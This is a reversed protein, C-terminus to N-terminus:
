HAKLILPYGLTLRITQDLMNYRASLQLNIPQHHTSYLITDWDSVYGNMSIFRDEAVQHILKADLDDTLWTRLNELDLLGNKLRADGIAEFCAYIHPIQELHDFHHKLDTNLSLFWTQDVPTQGSWAYVYHMRENREDPASYLLVQHTAGKATKALSRTVVMQSPHQSATETEELRVSFGDERLRRQWGEGEDRDLTGKVTVTWQDITVPKSHLMSIIEEIPELRSELTPMEAQELHHNGQITRALTNFHSHPWAFIMMCVLILGFFVEGKSLRM